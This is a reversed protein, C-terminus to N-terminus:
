LYTNPVLKLELEATTQPVMKDLPSEEGFGKRPSLPLAVSPNASLEQVNFPEM